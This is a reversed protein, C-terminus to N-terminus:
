IIREVRKPVFRRRLLLFGYIKVGVCL